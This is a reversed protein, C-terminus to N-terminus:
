LERLQIKRFVVNKQLLECITLDSSVRNLKIANENCIAVVIKHSCSFTSTVSGNLHFFFVCKTSKNKNERQFYSVASM